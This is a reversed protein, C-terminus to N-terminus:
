FRDDKKRKGKSSKFLRDREWGALVFFIDKINERATKDDIKKDYVIDSISLLCQKYVWNKDKM